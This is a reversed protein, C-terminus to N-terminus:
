DSLLLSSFGAGTHLQTHQRAKQLLFVSLASCSGDITVQEIAVSLTLKYPAYKYKYTHTVTHGAM